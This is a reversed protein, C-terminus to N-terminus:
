HVTSPIMLHWVIWWSDDQIFSLQFVSKHLALTVGAVSGENYHICSVFSHNHSSVLGLMCSWESDKLVSLAFSTSSIVLVRCSTFISQESNRVLTPEFVSVM